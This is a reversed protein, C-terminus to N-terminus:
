EQNTGNNYDEQTGINSIDGEVFMIKSGGMIFRTHGTEEDVVMIGHPDNKGEQKNKEWMCLDTLIFIKETDEKM